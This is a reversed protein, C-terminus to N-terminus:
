KVKKQTRLWIEGKKKIEDIHIEEQTEDPNLVTVFGTIMNRYLVQSDGKKTKIINGREPFEQGMKDYFNDEFKLCCLLRGCVGSIKSPSLYIDQSRASELKIRPKETL